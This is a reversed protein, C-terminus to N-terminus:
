VSDNTRQHLEVTIGENLDMKKFARLEGNNHLVNPKVATM